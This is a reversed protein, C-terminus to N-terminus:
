FICGCMSHDVTVVSEDYVGNGDYCCNNCDPLLQRRMLVVVIIDNVSPRCM